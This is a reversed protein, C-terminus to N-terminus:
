FALPGFETPRNQQAKIQESRILDQMAANIRNVETEDDKSSGPGLQNLRERYFFDVIKPPVKDRNGQEIERELRKKLFDLQTVTQAGVFYKRLSLYENIEDTNGALFKDFKNM